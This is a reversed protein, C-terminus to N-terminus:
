LMYIFTYKSVGQIENKYITYAEYFEGCSIHFM